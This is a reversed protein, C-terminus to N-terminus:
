VTPEESCSCDAHSQDPVAGFPIHDGAQRYAASGSSHQGATACGMGEVGAGRGAMGAPNM